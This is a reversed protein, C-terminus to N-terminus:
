KSIPSLESVFHGHKHGCTSREDIEESQVTTFIKTSLGSRPIVRTLKGSEDTHASHSSSSSKKFVLKAKSHVNSSIVKESQMMRKHNEDPTSKSRSSLRNSGSTDKLEEYKKFHNHESDELAPLSHSRTIPIASSIDNFVSNDNIQLVQTFLDSEEKSTM